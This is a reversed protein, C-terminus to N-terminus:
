NRRVWCRNCPKPSAGIQAENVDRLVVALAAVHGEAQLYDGGDVLDFINVPVQDVGVLVDAHLFFSKGERLLGETVVLLLHFDTCEGGDFDHSCM